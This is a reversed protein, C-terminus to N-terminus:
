LDAWDTEWYGRIHSLKREIKAVSCQLKSAIEANQYGEMRLRAIQRLEENPLKALLDAVQAQFEAPPEEGPFCEFGAEGLASGGRAAQHRRTERVRFDFAKWVTFRILLRMVNDRNRLELFQGEKQANSCFILFAEVAIDEGDGARCPAGRLRAQAIRALQEFYYKWLAQIAQQDGHKLGDIWRTVSGVEGSNTRGMTM